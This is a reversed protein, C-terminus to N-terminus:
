GREVDLNLQKLVEVSGFNLSVDRVSVSAM